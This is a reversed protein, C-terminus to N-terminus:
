VLYLCLSGYLQSVFAAFQVAFFLTDDSFVVIFWSVSKPSGASVCVAFFRTLRPPIGTGPAPSM